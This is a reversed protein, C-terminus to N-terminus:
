ADGTTRRATRRRMASFREPMSSIWRGYILRKVGALRRAEFINHTGTISSRLVSEWIANGGPDAALHVLVEIEEVAQRVGALDSVDALRLRRAPIDYVDIAAARASPEINKSLGRAEYGDPQTALRAYVRNGILGYAGSILVKTPSSSETM